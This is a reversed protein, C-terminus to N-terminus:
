RQAPRLTVIGMPKEVGAGSVAFLEVGFKRDHTFGPHLLQIAIEASSRGAPIVVTGSRVDVYDVQPRATMAVTRYHATVTQTLPLTRVVPVVCKPPGEWCIVDLTTVCGPCGGYIQQGGLPQHAAVARTPSPSPGGPTLALAFLAVIAVTLIPVRLVRNM